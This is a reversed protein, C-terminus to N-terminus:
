HRNTIGRRELYELKMGEVEYIMQIYQFGGDLLLIIDQKNM